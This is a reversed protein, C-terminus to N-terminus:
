GVPSVKGDVTVVVIQSMMYHEFLREDTPSTLLDPNTAAPKKDGANEQVIPGTPVSPAAPAAKPDRPVARCLLSRSDSMWSCPEHTNRALGGLPDRVIAFPYRTGESQDRAVDALAPAALQRAAGTQVDAIWLRVESAGTVTFALYKGDPSWAVDGIRAGDPIGRIARPAAAKAKIDLLEIRHAFGRRSPARNKPNIRLGALRLEVEAVEAISPFANPTVLALTARDPGLTAIPIPPAEVFAAVTKAPRQYTVDDAYSSSSCMLIAVAILENRM